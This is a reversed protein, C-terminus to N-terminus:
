ALQDPDVSNVHFSLVMESSKTADTSIIQEKFSANIMSGTVFLGIHEDMLNLTSIISAHKHTKFNRQCICCQEM